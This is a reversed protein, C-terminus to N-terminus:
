KKRSFVENFENTVAKRINEATIPEGRMELKQAPTVAKPIAIWLILYILAGTFAILTGIIFLLRFIIPDIRWYLGLGSCVGGLIRNDPDRYIRRYSQPTATGSKENFPEAEDPRGMIGIAKEVLAMPVVQGPVKISELFIEAIRSEMDDLIERKGPDASLNIEWSELYAKLVLCADEDMVFAQGGINVNMTSKM